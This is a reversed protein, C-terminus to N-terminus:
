NKSNLLGLDKVPKYVTEEGKYFYIRQHNNRKSNDTRKRYDPMSANRGWLREGRGEQREGTTHGENQRLPEKKKGGLWCSPVKGRKM